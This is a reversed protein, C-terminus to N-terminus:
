LPAASAPGIIQEVAGAAALLRADGGAPGM